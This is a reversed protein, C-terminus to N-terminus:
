ETSRGEPTPQLDALNSVQVTREPDGPRHAPLLLIGRAKAERIWRHVTAPPTSNAEALEQAPRPSIAALRLYRDAVLRYFEDPKRYGGPDDIALDLGDPAVPDPRLVYARGGPPRDTSIANAPLVRNVLHARHDPHNIAAEIRTIPIERLLASAFGATQPAVAVRLERVELPSRAAHDTPYVLRVENGITKPEGAPGDEPGIRLLVIARVKETAPSFYAAWGREDTAAMDFSLVETGDASLPILYPAPEEDRVNTVRQCYSAQQSVTLPPVRM